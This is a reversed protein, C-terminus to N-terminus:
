ASGRHRSHLLRRRFDLALVPLAAAAVFYAPRAGWSDVALSALWVGMSQGTFLCFAFLAVAAGRAEPAMQTAHVQLTNHLLYLGIGIAGICPVAFAASPALALALYGAGLALGGGLVMGREGLRTVVRGAVAAYVLGAAAFAAVMAGSAGLGLGFRRHADYAVFAFPGYVLAGEVFVTAVVVRVWPRRVLSAMRVFSAGLGQAADGAQAAVPNARLEIWLLVAVALNLAALMAFVTPWGFHEGVWGAATAAAAIGVMHGVLFRALVPQRGEYPVVDGIWAMATPVIAGIGGALSLVLTHPLFQLLAFPITLTTAIAPIVMYWRLNRKGLRDGLPGNVLQLVGYTIGFATM